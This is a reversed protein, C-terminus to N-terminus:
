NVALYLTVIPNDCTGSKLYVALEYDPGIVIPTPLNYAVSYANIAISGSAGTIDSFVATGTRRQIQFVAPATAILSSTTVYIAVLKSTGRIQQGVSNSVIGTGSSGVCLYSGASFRTASRAFFFPPTVGGSSGSTKGYVADIASQVDGLGLGSTTNNYSINSADDDDIYGM